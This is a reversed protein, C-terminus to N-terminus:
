DNKGRRFEEPLPEIPKVGYKARRARGWPCGGHTVKMEIGQLKMALKNGKRAPGCIPCYTECFEPSFM